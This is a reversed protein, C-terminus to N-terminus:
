RGDVAAHAERPRNGGSRDGEGGQAINRYGLYTGRGSKGDKRVVGGRGGGERVYPTRITWISIRGANLKYM